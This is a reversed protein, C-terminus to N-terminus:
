KIKMLLEGTKVQQGEQILVSEVTGTSSAVINTEMKMAEIVVLSDGEKVEDGDKVLVKIITGPISAGIELKNEPNAMKSSSDEKSNNLIRETKDKIKIERRNGNIEFDLTRNGDADLKGIEILQVIMTKGEAVEIESTEGEALGHFFVDSGMRSVDGYELVSKIFAEFVDPYLAYSILDQKSPNYKYEEKLYAEIKDFDEPPLLEGPRVTIPEEGKLVINQLDKPFGGEPQGMMGKFYSVISDPFAMNKAKENINEPTLDNQVMFIAMDGVMKSSPTVKIIDGLMDNVKKYMHKVDNFRHGLGFSEVQPKLNSYQGGPIEFKYIEASGSKLDSEFQNYVPRVADWYDSLKQIGSLNIGTDRDTNELAAVISNLAPQSTLGSMSNFTTDIIDVGADAAMLVTAVGNGTTDHTHLQIPISIEDKLATILKKAAYPKLLASMDKIALIHAGMKEIEKAKDVYYKLSYKDRNEDLIDGTYCLAVEAVKGCKLVEDLTVEIGKLWNLSDFMRFIDIGSTASEKILERIVNDSYNKYGVGNAGRILMQFMVNPIRKRLAELRNWPSEKLFRYATDFTAGGWMELSFLDNGYVATAKAINKM